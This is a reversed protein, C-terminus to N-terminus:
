SIPTVTYAGMGYAAGKGVHLLGGLTLLPGLEHFPGVLEYSGTLGRLCRSDTQSQRTYRVLKVELALKSLACFQEYNVGGGYYALVSSIRRLVAKIFFVPDFRILQRTDRILCLPSLLNVFVRDISSFCAANLAVLEEASLVPINNVEGGLLEKLPVPNDQYDLAAIRGGAKRGLITNLVRLISSIYTISPGLLTLGLSFDDGGNILELVYPTGPKQHRRVLEPDSSLEKGILLSVPCSENLLCDTCLRSAASCFELQLAEEFFTGRGSVLQRVPQLDTKSLPIALKVLNMDM